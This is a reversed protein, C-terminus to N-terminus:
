RIVPNLYSITLHLKKSSKLIWATKPGVILMMLVRSL